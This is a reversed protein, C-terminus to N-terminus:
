IAPPTQFRLRYHAAERPRGTGEYVVALNTAALHSGRGAVAGELDPREGLALCRLWAAEIMPLLTAARAPQDAAWDLLLDGLAFHFDPSDPWHAMRDTALQVARTHQGCRKLAYLWRVIMDHHWGTRTDAAGALLGDAQAFCRAAEAHREYVSHDKGLQYWLYAEGPETRLAALLLAQNRGAKVALAQPEYGDHGIVLGLRRVPLTHQPQEHVVGAYRVPGPLVRSMWSPAVTGPGGVAGGGFSSDVRVSGVFDPVSHRLAALAPGGDAIWEDADLVLHWDAGCRALAANRAAAFDDIWEFSGVQAGAGRAIAETGDTSGTDLVWMQDVFARASDLARRIRPAENRAIMVLAIRQPRM